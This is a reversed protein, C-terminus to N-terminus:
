PTAIGVEDMTNNFYVFNVFKVFGYLFSYLSQLNVLNFIACMHQCHDSIAGSCPLLFHEIQWPFLFYLYFDVAEHVHFSSGVKYAWVPALFTSRASQKKYLSGDSVITMFTFYLSVNNRAYVHCSHVLASHQEHLFNWKFLQNTALM